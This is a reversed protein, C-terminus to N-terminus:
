PKNREQAGSVCADPAECWAPSLAVRGAWVDGGSLVDAPRMSAPWPRCPQLAPPQRALTVRRVETGQAV